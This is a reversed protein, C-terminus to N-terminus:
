REEAEIQETVDLVVGEWVLQGESLYPASRCHVWLVKGSRTYHRFRCDFPLNTRVSEAEAALVRDRDDPHILGYVASSDAVAEAPSVGLMREIGASMYTFRTPAGSSDRVAQYVAGRPLNDALTQLRAETDRRAQEALRLSTHDRMIKGFGHVTGAEDRLPTLIGASWFRSGDKRVHWRDDVGRGTALAQEIEKEPQGAAIDEPTFFRDAKEGLIEAETYGLLREAGANWQRVRRESDIFFVAYDRVNEVLLRLADTNWALEGQVSPDIM